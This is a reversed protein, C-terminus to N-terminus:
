VSEALSKLYNSYTSVMPITRSSITIPGITMIETYSHISQADHL